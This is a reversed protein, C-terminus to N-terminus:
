AKCHRLKSLWTPPWIPRACTPPKRLLRLLQSTALQLQSAVPEVLSEIRKAKDLMSGLKAQFTITDLRPLYADLPRKIDERYFYAADAFRANVVDENGKRVADADM